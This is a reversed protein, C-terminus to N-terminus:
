PNANPTLKRTPTEKDLEGVKGQGLIMGLKFLFSFGWSGQEHCSDLLGSLKLRCFDKFRPLDDLIRGLYILQLAFDKM